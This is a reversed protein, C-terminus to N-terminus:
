RCERGHRKDRRLRGGGRRHAEGGPQGLVAVARRQEAGLTVERIGRQRGAHVGRRLGQARDAPEDQHRRGVRDVRDDGVEGRERGAMRHQQRGAVLRTKSAIVAAWSGSTTAAPGAPQVRRSRRGAGGVVQM